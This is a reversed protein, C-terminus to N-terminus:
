RVDTGCRDVVWDHRDFPLKFGLFNLFRAKPSYDRPRGRFKVLKPCDCEKAHLSEWRLVEAWCRENVANHIAIVNTMDEEKPTWGKRKIANFFMQESPYQWTTGADKQHEPLADNRESIPITSAVRHTSLNNRQGGSKRQDPTPMMNTPNVEDAPSACSDVGRDVSSSSSTSPSTDSGVRSGGGSALKAFM